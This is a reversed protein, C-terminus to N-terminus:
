ARRLAESLTESAGRLHRPPAESSDRFHRPATESTDRFHRPFRRAQCVTAATRWKSRLFFQLMEGLDLMLSDSDARPRSAGALSGDPFPPPEASCGATQLPTSYQGSGHQGTGGDVGGIGGVGGGGGGGGCAGGWGPSLGPGLDFDLGPGLGPLEPLEASPLAPPSAQSMLQSSPWRQQAGGGAGGGAGASRPM